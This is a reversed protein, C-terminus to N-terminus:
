IGNHRSNRVIDLNAYSEVDFPMLHSVHTANRIYEEVCDYALYDYNMHFKNAFLFQSGLLTSLDELGWICASRM